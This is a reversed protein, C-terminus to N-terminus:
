EFSVRKFFSSNFKKDLYKKNKKLLYPNLALTSNNLKNIISDKTLSISIRNKYTFERFLSEQQKFNKSKVFDMSIVIKKMKSDLFKIIMFHSFTKNKKFFNKILLLKKELEKYKCELQYQFFGRNKFIDNWNHITNQIFYFDNYNYIKKNFFINKLLFILNFIMAFIKTHSFFNLLYVIIRPISKISSKKVETNNSLHKGYFIIGNFYKSFCNIWIALYESNRHIQSIKKKVKNINFFFHKKLLINRFNCEDLRFKVSIITGTSGGAGFTLNYLKSNKKESCNYIKGNNIIKFSVVYDKIYNKKLYKGLTNNALMGGITAFKTGPLSKIILKKKEIIELFNKLCLGSEVEITKKKDDFEIVKNFKKLNIPSEGIPRDNYSQLNGIINYEKKCLKILENLNSPYKIKNTFFYNYSYNHKKKLM